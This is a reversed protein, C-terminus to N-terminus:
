VQRPEFFLVDNGTLPKSFFYGQIFDCNFSKLKDFQWKEEVGEVTLKMGLSHVLNVLNEVFGAQCELYTDVTSKDLKVVQIPLYTLYNLSSYGTGFDDLSIKIGLEDFQNFLESAQNKNGLFLSETIEIGLLEAPISYSRMLKRLYPIYGKDGIQGASFNISVRHLELGRDRWEAMQKIVKETVIRGIKAIHGDKEAIPIFKAPSINVKSLRVLAEFGYIQGSAVDIQPQYLVNFEEKKCAEELISGIEAKEMIDKKMEDTFLVSKNRGEKRASNMAIDANALYDEVTFLNSSNVIGISTMIFLSKGKFKIENSFLQKLFFVEPDNQELHRGQLIILFNDGNYRSAEYKEETCLKKLRDALEILIADGCEHTNFDNIARFDDIDVLLVAFDDNAAIHEEIRKSISDRNLLGTLGDHTATYSIHRKTRSLEFIYIVLVFVFFLLSIFIEIFPKFINRYHQWYNKAKNVYSFRLGSNKVSIRFKRMVDNDFIYEDEFRVVGHNNLNESDEITNIVMQGAFRGMKEYDIVSGGLFGKGIGSINDTFVPVSAHTIIFDTSEGYSYWNGHIDESVGFDILIVGSDLVSLIKGLKERSCQSANIGRFIFGPYRSALEYFDKQKRLGSASNDYLACIMRASPNLKVGAEIIKVMDPVVYCGCTKEMAGCSQALQEDEIGLFIVPVDTFLEEKYRNVFSLAFDDGPIVADYRSGHSFKVLLTRYFLELNAEASYNQMDMLQVDFGINESDLVSKLGTIEREVCDNSINYSSIYLVKKDSYSKFLERKSFKEITSFYGVALGLVGHAIGLTALLILILTSIKKYIKM